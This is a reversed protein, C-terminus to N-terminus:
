VMLSCWEEKATGTAYNAKALCHKGAWEGKTFENRLLEQFVGGFYIDNGNNIIEGGM